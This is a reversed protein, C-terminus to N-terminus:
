TSTEENHGNELARLKQDYEDGLGWHVGRMKRYHECWLSRLDQEQRANYRRVSKAWLEERAREGEDRVRQYHRKKVIRDLEAEVREGHEVSDL